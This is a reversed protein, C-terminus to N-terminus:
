FVHINLRNVYELNCYFEFYLKQSIEVTPKDLTTGTLDVTSIECFKTVKESYIIVCLKYITLKQSENHILLSLDLEQRSWQCLFSLCEVIRCYGILVMM